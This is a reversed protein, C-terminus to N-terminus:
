DNEIGSNSVFKGILRELSMADETFAIEDGDQLAEEEAGPEMALFQDGLVGATRIALSTDIPLVLGADLDMVVRARMFEDLEIRKVSGVTVGAISVPARDTLGGIDDFYAVIELGGGGKFSLGGVQLSLFAIAAMGAIVFAGVLLDRFASPQM